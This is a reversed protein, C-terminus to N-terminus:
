KLADYLKNANNIAQLPKLFPYQMYREVTRDAHEVSTLWQDNFKSNGYYAGLLAGTIACNTDTDGGRKAVNVVSLNPDSGHMLEYVANQFAIGIYGQYKKSDTNVYLEDGRNEVIYIPEALDLSDRLVIKTRPLVSHKQLIKYIKEKSLGKICYKIALCYLYCFEKVTPHPHTLNCEQEVYHKLVSNKVTTGLLGLPSIRMLSGNSLSNSNMDKSNQIMETNNVAKKRTHLAKGITLGIDFPNSNFWRIYTDAVKDQKYSNYKALVELLGFMMESDDTVQGAEISFPGGGLIPYQNGIKDNETQATAEEVSTFEYRSGFADGYIAGYITGLFKDKM